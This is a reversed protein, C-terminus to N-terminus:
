DGLEDGSVPPANPVKAMSSEFNKRSGRQARRELERFDEVARSFEELKRLAFVDVSQHDQSALNQLKEYVEDPLNLAIAKM